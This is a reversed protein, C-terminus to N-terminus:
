DEINPLRKFVDQAYEFHHIRSVSPMALCLALVRKASGLQVYAISKQNEGRLSASSAPLRKM